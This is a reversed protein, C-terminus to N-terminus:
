PEMTEAVELMYDIEERTFDRISIIDRDTFNFAETM